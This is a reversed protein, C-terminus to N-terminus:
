GRAPATKAPPPAEDETVGRCDTYFRHFRRALEEAYKAIRYPARQNTAISVIEEFNSIERMLELEAEEHLKDWRIAGAITVGQESARRLIGAIRAHGYQVYYVP